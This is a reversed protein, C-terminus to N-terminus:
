NAGEYHILAKRMYLDFTTDDLYEKFEDYLEERIKGVYYRFFLSFYKRNGWNSTICSMQELLKDIFYDYCIKIKDNKISNNKELFYEVINDMSINEKYNIEESNKIKNDNDTNVLKLNFDKIYELKLEELLNYQESESLWLSVIQNIPIILNDQNLYDVVEGNILKKAAANLRGTFNSIIQDEWSIRINFEGFGSIVNILRSAFGSSCTGSMEELEELLRKKMENAYEHNYIYSWIKILINGITNNYKSYLVRDLKIRNIALNIKKLKEKIKDVVDKDAVDKNIILTDVIDTNIVENIKINNFNNNIYEQNNENYNYLQKFIDKIQKEVYEITIPEGQILLIPLTSLFELIDIVSAEVNENHVNQANNFITINDEHGGGLEMIINRALIKNNPNGVRLLVDAADARRDYDININRAFELLQEEVKTRTENSIKSKQLLYQASLIRYYIDNEICFLFTIQLEKIFYTFIDQDNKKSYKNYFYKIDDYKLRKLVNELLLVNEYDIIFNPYDRSLSVKNYNIFDKAFNIDECLPLLFNYMLGESMNELSIITKYRFECDIKTDVIFDKFYELANKRYNPYMMLLCIAEIRCPSALDELGYCIVNLAFIARDNKEINKKNIKKIELQTSDSTYFERYSILCKVIELKLFTSINSETCIKYLYEELKSIGSMEYMSILRHIIDITEDQNLSYFIELAEIRIDIHKNLDLITNPLNNYDIIYDEKKEEEKEKEEKKEEEELLYDIASTNMKIIYLM